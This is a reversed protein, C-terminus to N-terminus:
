TGRSTTHCGLRANPAFFHACRPDPLSLLRAHRHQEKIMPLGITWAACYAESNRRVRAQLDATM